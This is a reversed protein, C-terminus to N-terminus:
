VKKTTFFSSMLRKLRILATKVDKEKEIKRVKKIKTADIYRLETIGKKPNKQDIIKHYYIRGDVYWRRFIDHGKEDFKLLRLVEDFEDTIARKIKSSYPINDLVIQVSIDRENAVIGENIIDEIATDCESQQAIDRYRRILDLDTREKGDTNLYSSFFGGGAIDIAGYDSTPATFSTGGEEKSKTIKYGFLEAM